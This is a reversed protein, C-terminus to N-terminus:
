PAPASAPPTQEPGDKPEVSNRTEERLKAAKAARAKAEAQAKIDNPHPYDALMGSALVPEGM